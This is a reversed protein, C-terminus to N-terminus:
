AAILKGDERTRDELISFEGQGCPESGSVEHTLGALADGRVLDLAHDASAILGRPIEAVADPGCHLFNARLRKSAHDFHVFGVNTTAIPSTSAADAFLNDEADLLAASFKTEEVSVVAFRARECFVDLLIDAAIHVHNHSIFETRIRPSEVFSAVGAVLVLRDLVLGADVNVSVNRRVADFGGKAQELPADHSRPVFDRRLMERSVEVFHSEPEVIPSVRVQEAVCHLFQNLSWHQFILVERSRLIM